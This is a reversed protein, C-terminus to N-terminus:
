NYGPNQWLIAKNNIKEIETQPIPFLMQYDSITHGNARMADKALGMRVLDFWRQGEYPFERQREIAIAKRFSIQDPLDVIQIPNLGSRTHVQNLALLAESDPSSSYGIENMAEAYMLLVDAYRLLIQDNGVNKTTLDRMDVFKNMVAVASENPAKVYTILEKRLDSGKYCTKLTDTQFNEDSVNVLSYWFGHGEDIISKNYRVAFIIERNMKNNVDFVDNASPLLSYMGMVQSLTNRAEEWRHFTLYVKGLLTLAAGRTLRGSYRNDYALPLMNQEVIQQLDGAIYEYMQEKSSRALNLSESVSLVRRAVPVGSWIRYMNFYCWARIFLVEGKFQRKKAPSINANDIRDLVLNCRYVNNNFNAWADSLISNSPKERFQDIDYRDQTGTTPAKLALNDSRYECCETYFSFQSQLKAYCGVVAIDFDSETVYLDDILGKDYPKLDLFSNTCSWLSISLFIFIIKKMTTM